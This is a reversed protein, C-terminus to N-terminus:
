ADRGAVKSWLGIALATLVVPPVLAGILIGVYLGEVGGSLGLWRPLEIAIGPDDDDEPPWASALEEPTFVSHSPHWREFRPASTDNRRM